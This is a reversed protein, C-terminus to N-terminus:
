RMETKQLRFPNMGHKKYRILTIENGRANWFVEDMFSMIMLIGRGSEKFLNEPLTPDPLRSYDFGKGEDRIVYKVSNRSIEYHIYVRRHCYPERQRRLEAEERFLEFRQQKLESSVELNGHFIANSLAEVLAMNIAFLEQEELIGFSPLNRTMFSVIQNIYEFDNYLELTRSEFISNELCYVSFKSDENLQIVRSLSQHLNSHSFPFTLLDCAGLSFSRLIIEKQNDAAIAVFPVFAKLKKISELLGFGNVEPLDVRGFVGEIQEQKFLDLADTTNDAEFVLHLQQQLFDCLQRRTEGDHDAVLINM